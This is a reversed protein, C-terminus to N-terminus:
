SAPARGRVYWAAARLCFPGVPDGLNRGLERKLRSRGEEDLSGAFRGLGGVGVAFPYWLDDLDDYEASAEIRGMEVEVLGAGHWLAELEGPHSNPLRRDAGFSRASGEDVTRAAAWAAGLLTMGGEYDWVCAALVGGPRTVRRMEAVGQRADVMGDVVLQALAADFSADPYPM